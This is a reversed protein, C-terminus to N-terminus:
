GANDEVVEYQKPWGKPLSLAPKPRRPSDTISADVIGGSRVVLGRREFQRAVEALLADWGGTAMLRSRFRSLCSHDPVPDLMSLGCFRGFSLSDNVRNELERDSLGYWIGLLSMKFLLLGPYAPKGGKASGAHYYRGIEAEIGAWDLVADVQDFFLNNVRRKSAAM